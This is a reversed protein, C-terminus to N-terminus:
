ICQMAPFQMGQCGSGCCRGLWGQNCTGPYQAVKHAKKSCPYSDNGFGTLFASGSGFFAKCVNDLYNNEEPIPSPSIYLFSECRSGLRVLCSVIEAVTVTKNSVSASTLDWCKANQIDPVSKITSKGTAARCEAAGGDSWKGTLGNCIVTRESVNMELEFGTPCKVVLMSGPTIGSGTVVAAGAEYMPCTLEASGKSLPLCSSTASFDNKKNPKSANANIATVLERQCNNLASLECSLWTFLYFLQDVSSTINGFSTYLASFKAAANKTMNQCFVERDSIAQAYKTAIADETFPM